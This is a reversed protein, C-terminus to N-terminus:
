FCCVNIKECNRHICSQQTGRGWSRMTQSWIKAQATNEDSLKDFPLDEELNVWMIASPIWCMVTQQITNWLQQITNWLKQSNILPGGGGAKTGQWLARKMPHSVAHCNSCAVSFAISLSYFTLWHRKTVQDQFHHEM